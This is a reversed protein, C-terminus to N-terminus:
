DSIKEKKEDIIAKIRSKYTRLKDRRYSLVHFKGSFTKGENILDIIGNNLEFLLSSVENLLENLEETSLVILEKYRKIGKIDYYSFTLTKSDEM